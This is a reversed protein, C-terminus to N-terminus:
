CSCVRNRGTNKANYLADDAEKILNEITLIDNPQSKSIGISITIRMELGNFSFVQKELTNRIFEAKKIVNELQCILGAAFEEGGYRLIIDEVRFAQKIIKAVQELIYDGAQHGFTDNVNKFHDIDFMMVYFPSGSRKARSYDEKLRQMGFRRNYIGTLEDIAAIKQMNEYALSRELALSYQYMLRKFFSIDNPKLYVDFYFVVLYSENKKTQVPIFITEKPKISVTAINIEITPNQVHILENKEFMDKISEKKEDSLGQRALYSHVIDVNGMKDLKFIEIGLCNFNDAMFKAFNDNLEKTELSKSLNLYFEDSKQYQWFFQRIISIFL